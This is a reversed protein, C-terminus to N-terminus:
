WDIIRLAMLCGLIYIPVGFFLWFYKAPKRDFEDWDSWSVLSGSFFIWLIINFVWQALGEIPKLSPFEILGIAVFGIGAALTCGAKTISWWDFGHRVIGIVLCVAAIM